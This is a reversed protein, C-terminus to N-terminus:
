LNLKCGPQARGRAWSVEAVSALNPMDGDCCSVRFQEIGTRRYAELPGRWERCMNVVGTVGHNRLAWADHEYPLAGLLVQGSGIPTMLSNIRWGIFEYARQSLSNLGVLLLSYARQARLERRGHPSPPRVAGRHAGTVSSRSSARGKRHRPVAPARVPRVVCSRDSRGVDLPRYLRGFLELV